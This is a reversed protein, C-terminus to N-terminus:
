LKSRAQSASPLPSPVGGGGGGGDCLGEGASGRPGMEALRGKAILYCEDGKGLTHQQTLLHVHRAEEM